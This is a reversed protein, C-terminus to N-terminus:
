TKAQQQALLNSLTLTGTQPNATVVEQLLADHLERNFTNRAYYKAYYVKVM